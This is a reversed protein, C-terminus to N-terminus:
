NHTYLPFFQLFTALTAAVSLWALAINSQHLIAKNSDSTNNIMSGIAILSSCLALCPSLIGFFELRVRYKSPAPTYPVIPAGGGLM